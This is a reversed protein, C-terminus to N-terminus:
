SYQGAKLAIVEKETLYRWFGRQLGKKTLGAFYVRDLKTVKYGLSELMRRVIRNRGNHIEIGVEKQNDGIYSIEDAFAIGDELEVGSALKEMDEETINKDLFVHYIKKKGYSPHTLERTLDGDNTFLLVGMTQKDLRGVPYIRENVKDGLIDMVTHGNANPDDVTTVFGKPKNMVIYVKKEGRIVEDNVRVEDGPNIKSGLETVVVGNVSVAGSTIYSDAERRSCVGSMAIYRNLRIERNILPEATFAVEPVYEEKVIRARRKREPSFSDGDSNDRRSFGRREGAYRDWRGDRPRDYRSRHGEGTNFGDRDGRNFRRDRDFHPRDGGEVANDSRRSFPRRDNDRDFHRRDRDFHPRDNRDNDRYGRSSGRHFDRGDSRADDGRSFDRRDPRSDDGRHFNRREFHSDDGRRFDRREPRSDDSRHFDRRDRDFRGPRDSRGDRDHFSRDGRGFRSERNDSNRLKNDRSFNPNFSRRRDDYSRDGAGATGRATRAERGSGDREDKFFSKIAEQEDTKNM